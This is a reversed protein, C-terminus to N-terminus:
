IMFEYYDDLDMNDGEDYYDYYDDYNNFSYPDPYNLEKSPIINFDGYKISKYVKVLIKPNEGSLYINDGTNKNSVFISYIGSESDFRLKVGNVKKIPLKLNNERIENMWHYGREKNCQNNYSAINLINSEFYCTDTFPNTAIDYPTNPVKVTFSSKDLHIKKYSDNASVSSLSVASVLMIILLILVIKKNM